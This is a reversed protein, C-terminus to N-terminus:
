PVGDALDGRASAAGHKVVARAFGAGAKDADPWVIVQRKQLPSWDAKDAAKSGGPSTTAVYDPFLEGAADATREGEVVLVPAEPRAALKDLNYLPRPEAFGGCTMEGGDAVFPRFQKRRGDGNTLDYRAVAGVQDGAANKYIWVHVLAYGEPTCTHIIDPVPKM